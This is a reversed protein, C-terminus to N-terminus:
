PRVEAGPGIGGPANGNTSPFSQAQCWHRWMGRLADEFHGAFRPADFIPSVLLRPRLEQRIRQLTPLDAAHRAARSVYDDPDTAIWEPLGANELLGVGQRTLFTRGALTVFPVGMWLTEVSTTIGTYPFTDLAIDIRNFPKLYDARPVLAELMLRADDIGHAAFQRSVRQRATPEALAHTKVLLKSGPVAHLVRAWLAIVEDTVKLLNNFSGFTVHGNALAPLPGITGDEVPPTFCLYSGPLRWIKESFFPEEEPLLTWEDAILYDIAEVGTTGLYGLWTAQVPAPKRALAPLRNGGTHGSLDILIDIGDERIVRALDEDNLEHVDRWLSCLAEIRASVEDAVAHNFYGCLELRGAARESLAALFSVLFYGVPHARLDGSVFGVRLRRDPDPTNPWSTPPSARRAAIAGFGRALELLATSPESTRSSQLLLLNSHAVLQEPDLELVRRWSAAAEDTRGLRHLAAGLDNHAIVEMPSLAIVRQFCEVAEILRGTQLLQIGLMGHAPANDPHHQLMRRYTAIAADHQQLQEQAIGLRYYLTTLKPDLKLAHQFCAVAEAPQSLKLLVGALNGYVPAYDPRQKLARRYSAAAEESRGLEELAAGLAVEADVLAPKLQLARHYSACAEEWRKRRALANGLNYHAGALAPDYGLAAQYAEGANNFDGLTMLANGRNLHARALTPALAVAEDYLRLAEQVRGQDEIANGEAILQQPDRAAPAPEPAGARRTYRDFLGM